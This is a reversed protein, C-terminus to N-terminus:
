LGMLNGEYGRRTKATFGMLKGEYGWSTERM